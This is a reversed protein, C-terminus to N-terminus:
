WLTAVRIHYNFRIFTLVTRSTFGEAASSSSFNQSRMGGSRCLFKVLAVMLKIHSLTTKNHTGYSFPVLITSYGM